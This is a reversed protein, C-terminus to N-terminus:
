YVHSWSQIYSISAANYLQINEQFHKYYVTMVFSVLSLSILFYKELNSQPEATYFMVM